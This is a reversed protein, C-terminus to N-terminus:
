LINKLKLKDINYVDSLAYDVQALYVSAQALNGTAAFSKMLLYCKSVCDVQEHLMISMWTDSNKDWIRGFEEICQNTKQVDNSNIGEQIQKTVGTLENYSSTIYWNQLFAFLLLISVLVIILINKGM